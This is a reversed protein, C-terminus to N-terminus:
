VGNQAKHGWGVPLHVKARLAFSNNWKSAILKILAKLNLLMVSQMVTREDPDAKQNCPFQELKSSIRFNM